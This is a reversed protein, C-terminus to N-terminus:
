DEDTFYGYEEFIVSIEQLFYKYTKIYDAPKDEAKSHKNYYSDTLKAAIDFPM